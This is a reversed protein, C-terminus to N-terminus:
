STGNRATRLATYKSVFYRAQSKEEVVAHGRIVGLPQVGEGFFEIVLDDMESRHEILRGAICIPNLSQAGFTLPDYDGSIPPDCAAGASRAAQCSDFSM